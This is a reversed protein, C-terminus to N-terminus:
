RKSSRGKLSHVAHSVMFSFYGKVRFDSLVYDDVDTYIDYKRGALRDRRGEYRYPRDEFLEDDDTWDDFRGIDNISKMRIDSWQKGNLAKRLEDKEYDAKMECDACKGRKVVVLVEKEIESPEQMEKCPERYVAVSADPHVRDRSKLLRLWHALEPARERDPHGQKSFQFWRIRYGLIHSTHSVFRLEKWGDSEMILENLLRSQANDDDGGLVTLQNLRLDPLQVLGLQFGRARMRRVKSLTDRPIATLVDLM